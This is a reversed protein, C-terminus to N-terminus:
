FFAIEYINTYHFLHVRRTNGIGIFSIILIIGNPKLLTSLLINTALATQELNRRLYTFNISIFIIHCNSRFRRALFRPVSIYIYPINLSDRILRYNLSIYRFSVFLIINKRISTMTLFM